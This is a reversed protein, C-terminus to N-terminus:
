ASAPWFARIGAVGQAGHRWATELEAPGVGGLAYVPLPVDARAEAFGPWDLPRADPHSPTSRVPSLVAADAGGRHAQLLEARDHCSVVLWLDSPVPRSDAATLRGAPWHLGAAGVRRCLATDRDVILDVGAPGTVRAVETALAEYATDALGNARLRLLRVGSAILAPMRALFAAHDLEPEPTIAYAAPLCLADVIPKNASLLDYDTLREPECWVVPQGERGHPEGTWATVCHIDLLVTRDRYAHHFRLLPRTAKLSVGLEEDLERALTQEISEGPERKGGPFEWKGGGPKNAPRRAILVRGDPDVLCGVAIHLVDVHM